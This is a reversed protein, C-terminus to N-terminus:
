TNEKKVSPQESQKNIEAKDIFTSSFRTQKYEVFVGNGVMKPFSEACSSSEFTNYNNTNSVSPTYNIQVNNKM